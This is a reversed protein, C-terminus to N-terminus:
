DPAPIGRITVSASDYDDNVGLELRRLLDEDM